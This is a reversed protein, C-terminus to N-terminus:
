RGRGTEGNITAKRIGKATLPEDDCEVHMHPTYFNRENVIRNFLAVNQEHKQELDKKTSVRNSWMFIFIPVTIAIFNEVIRGWDM